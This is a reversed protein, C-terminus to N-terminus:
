IYKKEFLFRKGAIVYETNNALDNIEWDYPTLDLKEYAMPEIISIPIARGSTKYTPNWVNKLPFTDKIKNIQKIFKNTEFIFLLRKHPNFFAYHEAGKIKAQEPGGPKEEKLISYEEVFFNPSNVKLDTKLELIKGKEKGNIYKLDGKRGKIREWMWPFMAEVCAEGLQGKKLQENFLYVM